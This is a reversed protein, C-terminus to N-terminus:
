CIPPFETCHLNSLQLKKQQTKTKQKTKNQKQKKLCLRVYSLSAELLSQTGSGGAEVAWTSLLCVHLVMGAKYPAPTPGWPKM